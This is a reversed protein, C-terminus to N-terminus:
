WEVDTFYPTYTYENKGEAFIYRVTNTKENYAFFLFCYYECHDTTPRKNVEDTFYMCIWDGVTEERIIGDLGLVREKEAQFDEESLVWEAFVDESFDAWGGDKYRYYYKTTDYYKEGLFTEEWNEITPVTDPFLPDFKELKDYYHVHSGHTYLYDDPDESRSEWSSVNLFFVIPSILLSIIWIIVFIIAIVKRKDKKKGIKRKVRYIIFITLCLAFQIAPFYKVIFWFIRLIILAIIEFFNKCVSIDPIETFELLNYGLSAITFQLVLITIGSLVMGIVSIVTFVHKEKQEKPSLEMDEVPVKENELNSSLKECIIEITINEEDALTGIKEIIESSFQIKENTRNIYEKITNQATEGGMQLDKIEQISFDAKRLLAINKLNEVDTESFEISKRGNYNEDCEPKVLDNEIYLRIARDTLGTKAMVQKIKM